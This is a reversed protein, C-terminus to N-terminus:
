TQDVFYPIARLGMAMVLCVLGPLAFWEYVPVDQVYVKSVLLSKEISDIAKSAAVLDRESEANYTKGGNREVTNMLAMVAPKERVEQALDVGIIHVRIDADRSEALVDIPDRGRNYEGDTFLVIVQHGHSGQNAQRTLVYNSLALGDGIATQGENQLIQDDILDVYRLLYNHDFTLPSVVYPNDSFVVLGIRDDRRARIFTRIANKTADLRTRVVAPKATRAKASGMEEQMSSSLDLLIVVDLGRSQVEAQSFPIVPQLLAAGIFLLAAAMAAFPLRRFISARYTRASLSRVMTSAAFHWHLRWKVLVVAVFAALLWPALWLQLFRIMM